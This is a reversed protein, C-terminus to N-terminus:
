CPRTEGRAVRSPASRQHGKEVLYVAHVELLRGYMRSGLVRGTAIKWRSRGSPLYTTSRLITVGGWEETMTRFTRDAFFHLHGVGNVSRPMGTRRKRVLGAANSLLADQLPVEVLVVKAVRSAEVIAERPHPLHEVVHSLVALDFSNDPFPLKDADGVIADALGRFPRSKVYGIAAPSLDCLTFEEGLHAEAMMRALSGDNCAIDLVSRPSLGGKVLLSKWVDLRGEVKKQDALLGRNERGWEFVLDYYDSV